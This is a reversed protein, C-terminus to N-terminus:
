RVIHSYVDDEFVPFSFNGSSDRDGRHGPHQRRLEQVLVEEESDEFGRAHLAAATRLRQGEAEEDILLLAAVLDTLHVAGPELAAAPDLCVRRVVGDIRRRLSKIREASAPSTATLTVVGEIGELQDSAGSERLGGQDGPGVGGALKRHVTGDFGLVVEGGRRAALVDSVGFLAVALPSVM